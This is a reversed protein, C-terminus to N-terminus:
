LLTFVQKFDGAAIMDQIVLQITELRCETILVMNAMWFYQGDLFQGTKRHKNALRPITQYEFFPAIFTEGKKTKVIVDTNDDAVALKRAARLEKSLYIKDIEVSM